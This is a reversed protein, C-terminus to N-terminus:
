TNNRSRFPPRLDHLRIDFLHRPTDASQALVHIEGQLLHGLGRAAGSGLVGSLFATLFVQGEGEQVLAGVLEAHVDDLKQGAFVRVQRAVREGTGALPQGDLAARAELVQVLRRVEAVLQGLGEHHRRRVQFLLLVHRHVQRAVLALLEVVNDGALHAEGVLVVLLNQVCAVHDHVIGAAAM